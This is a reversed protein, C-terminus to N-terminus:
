GSVTMPTAFVLDATYVIALSASALPTCLSTSTRSVRLSSSTAVSDDVVAPLSPVSRSKVFQGQIWFTCNMARFELGSAPITFTQSVTGSGLSTVVSWASQQTLTFSGFLPNTCDAFMADGTAVSGTGNSALSMEKQSHICTIAQRNSTLTFVVPRAGTSIYSGSPSVTLALASASSFALLAVLALSVTLASARLPRSISM